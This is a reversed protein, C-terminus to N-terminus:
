IELDHTDVGGNGPHCRHLRGLTLRIGGVFGKQRFALESYRSCSPEFLCRKGLRPSIRLRYVRLLQIITKLWFPRKPLSLSDVKEDLEPQGGLARIASSQLSADVSLEYTKGDIVIQRAQDNRAMM